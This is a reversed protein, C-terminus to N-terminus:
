LSATLSHGADTMALYCSTPSFYSLGLSSAAGEEKSRQPSVAPLSTLESKLSGGGQWCGSCASSKGSKPLVFDKELDPNWPYVQGQSKHRQLIETNPFLWSCRAGLRSLDNGGHAGPSPQLLSDLPSRHAPLTWEPEHSQSFHFSTM